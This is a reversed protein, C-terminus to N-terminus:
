QRTSPVVSQAGDDFAAVYAIGKDYRLIVVDADKGIGAGDDSRAGSCRRTGEVTYIIEGTGGGDRIPITVRAPTGYYSLAELPRERAALAAMLRNVAVSGGVGGAAAIVATAIQPLPTSQTLLAGIGGFVALFFVLAAINLRVLWPTSMEHTVDAVAHQASKVVNGASQQGAHAHAHGHASAHGHAHGHVHPVHAHGGGATLSHGVMSLLSLVSFGVGALFCILYFTFM